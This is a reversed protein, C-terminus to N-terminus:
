SSNINNNNGEEFTSINTSKEVEMSRDDVKCEENRINSAGNVTRGPEGLQLPTEENM